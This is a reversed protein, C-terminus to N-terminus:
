IAFRPGTSYTFLLRQETKDFCLTDEGGLNALNPKRPKIGVCTKDPLYVVSADYTKLLYERSVRGRGFLDLAKNVLAEREMRSEEQFHLTLAVGLVYGVALSVFSVAVFTAFPSLRKM